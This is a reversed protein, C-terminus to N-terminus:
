IQMGYDRALMDFAETRGARAEKAILQYLATKRDEFQSWKKGIIAQVVPSTEEHYKDGLRETEQHMREWEAALEVGSLFVEGEITYAIESPIGKRCIFPDNQLENRCAEVFGEGIRNLDARYRNLLGVVGNRKDQTKALLDLAILADEDWLSASVLLKAYLKDKDNLLRDHERDLMARHIPSEELSAAEVIQDMEVQLSEITSITELWDHYSTCALKEGSLIRSEIRLVEEDDLYFYETGPLRKADYHTHLEIELARPNPVCAVALVRKPRLENMRRDFDGTIGIKFLSEGVGSEIFYIFGSPAELEPRESQATRRRARANRVKLDSPQLRRPRPIRDM